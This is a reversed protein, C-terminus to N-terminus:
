MQVGLAGGAAEMRCLADAVVRYDLQHLIVLTIKFGVGTRTPQTYDVGTDLIAIKVGERTYNSL